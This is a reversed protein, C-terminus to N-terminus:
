PIRGTISLYYRIPKLVTIGSFREKSSGQLSGHSPLCLNYEFNDVRIRAGSDSSRTTIRENGFSYESIPGFM